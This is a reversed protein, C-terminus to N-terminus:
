FPVARSTKLSLIDVKNMFINFLVEVKLYTSKLELTGKM